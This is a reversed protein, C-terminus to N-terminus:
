PLKSVAEEVVQEMNYAVMYATDGRGYVVVIFTGGGAGPTRVVLVDKGGIRERASTTGTPVEYAKLNFAMFADVLTETAIGPVRVAVVEPGASSGGTTVVAAEISSPAVGLQQALPALFETPLAQPPQLAMGGLERPLGAGVASAVTAAPSATITPGTTCGIVVLAVTLVTARM